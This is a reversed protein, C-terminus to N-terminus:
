RYYIPNTNTDTLRVAFTTFKRSLYETLLNITFQETEFHGIDAIIIKGDADFFQHYKFDSSIFIDAGARIANELLFSGSGGCIAVSKIESKILATHRISGTKMVSKVHDLFDITNVPAPLQGILGAGVSQLQNELPYIDYAIEEYPHSTRLAKLVENEVWIPYITEIRVEAERHIEGKKGAFPTAQEGAKFTGTGSVNFTCDSYNGINGAGAKCIAERVTEAQAEPVFTVLKRLKGKM